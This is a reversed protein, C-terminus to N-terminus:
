ARSQTRSEAAALEREAAGRARAELDALNASASSTTVVDLTGGTARAIRCSVELARDGEDTPIWGRVSRLQSGPASRTV